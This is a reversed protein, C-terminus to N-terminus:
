LPITLQVVPVTCAAVITISCHDESTKAGTACSDVIEGKYVHSGLAENFVVGNFIHSTETATGTYPGAKVATDAYFRFTYPPTGATTVAVTVNKSTGQIIQTPCTAPSLTTTRGQRLQNIIDNKQELTLQDNSSIRYMIENVNIIEEM